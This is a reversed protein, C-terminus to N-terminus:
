FVSVAFHVYVLGVTLTRFHQFRGEFINTSYRHKLLNMTMRCFDWWISALSYIENRFVYIPQVSVIRWGSPWPLQSIDFTLLDELKGHMMHEALYM